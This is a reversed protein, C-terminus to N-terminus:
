IRIFVEGILELGGWHVSFGHREGNRIQSRLKSKFQSWLADSTSPLALRMHVKNMQRQTLKPHIFEEEHRLELYRVDLADSLSIAEDMLKEAIQWDEAILGGQNLYPLSVLFKGFLFSRVEALPLVGVTKGSQVAELVFTRHGFAHELVSLWGLNRSPHSNKETYHALRDWVEARDLKAQHRIIEITDM